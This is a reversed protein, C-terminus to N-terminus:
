LKLVNQTLGKIQYGEAGARLGLGPSFWKGLHLGFHPALNESLSAQKNHDGFYVQAGAGIGLFWNSWFSNTIVKYKDNDAIVTTDKRISQGFVATSISLAIFVLSVIRM